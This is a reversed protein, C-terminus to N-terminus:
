IRFVQNKLYTGNRNLPRPRYKFFANPQVKIFVLSPPKVQSKVSNEAIQQKQETKRVKDFFQPLFGCCDFALNDNQFSEFQLADKNSSSKLCHDKKALPCSEIQAAQAKMTGCFFLLVVGSLWVALLGASLRKTM